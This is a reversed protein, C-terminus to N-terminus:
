SVGRLFGELFRRELFRRELFRRELLRRELAARPSATPRRPRHPAARGPRALQTFCRECSDIVPNGPGEYFHSLMPRRCQPCSLTRDGPEQTRPPVAGQAEAEHVRAADIVEAFHKMEILLGLCRPCALLPYGDLRADSLPM